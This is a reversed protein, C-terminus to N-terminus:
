FCNRFFFNACSNSFASLLTDLNSSWFVIVVLLVIHRMKMHLELTNQRQPLRRHDLAPLYGAKQCSSIPEPKTQFGGLHALPQTANPPALYGVAAYERSYVLHKIFRQATLGSELPTSQTSISLPAQPSNSTFGYIFKSNKEM